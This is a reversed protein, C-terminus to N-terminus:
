CNLSNEKLYKVKGKSLTYNMGFRKSIEVM